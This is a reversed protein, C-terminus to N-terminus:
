VAIRLCWVIAGVILWFSLSLFFLLLEYRVLSLRCRRRLCLWYLCYSLLPQHLRGCGDLHLKQNKLICRWSHSSYLNLGLFWFRLVEQLYVACLLYCSALVSQCYILLLSLNLLM